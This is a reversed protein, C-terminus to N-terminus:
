TKKKTFDKFIKKGVFFALKIGFAVVLLYIGIKFLKVLFNLLGVTVARTTENITQVLVKIEGWWMEKERELSVLKDEAVSINFYVWKIREEIEEIMRKQGEIGEFVKIKEDTIEKVLKLDNEASARGLLEDYIKLSEELVKIKKEIEQYEKVVKFASSSINRLNFGELYELFEKEKEKKIKFVLYCGTKYDSFSELVFLDLDEKAKLFSCTEEKDRTKIEASYSKFELTEYPAAAPAKLEMLESSPVFSVEGPYPVYSLGREPASEKQFIGTLLFKSVGLVLILVVLFIFVLFGYKLVNKVTLMTKIDQLNM